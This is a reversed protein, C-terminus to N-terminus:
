RCNGPWPRNGTWSCKTYSMGTFTIHNELLGERNTRLGWKWLMTAQSNHLPARSLVKSLPPHQTLQPSCNPMYVQPVASKAPRVTPDEEWSLALWPRPLAKWPQGWRASLASGARWPVPASAWLRAGGVGSGQCLTLPVRTQTYQREILVQMKPHM